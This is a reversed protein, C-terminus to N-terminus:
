FYDHFSMKGLKFYTKKEKRRELVRELNELCKDYSSRFITLDDMFFKLYNEIIDKFMDDHM